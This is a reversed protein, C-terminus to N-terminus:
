EKEAAFPAVEAESGYPSPYLENHASQAWDRVERADEFSAYAMHRELIWERLESLCPSLVIFEESGGKNLLGLFDLAEDVWFWSLDEPEPAVKVVELFYLLFRVWNKLDRPDGFGEAMRFEVTEGQRDEFSRRLNLGNRGQFVQRLDSLSYDRKTGFNMSKAACYSSTKRRSPLMDYMMKEMKIYYKLFRHYQNDNFDKLLVHVHGGCSNSVKAGHQIFLTHVQELLKLDRICKNISDFSGLVKSAVERGCSADTKCFWLNDVNNHRYSTITAEEGISTLLEKYKSQPLDSNFELEAGFTRKPQFKKMVFKM